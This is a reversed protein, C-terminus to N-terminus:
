DPTFDALLQSLVKRVTVMGESLNAEIEPIEIPGDGRGAAHNVSVAIAAYCLGLERAIAAEPMGTMGVVHCGDNELRNIEAATELRPGQTVGYTAATAVDVGSIKAAAILQVRLSACYPETFDIHAAFNQDEEFLTHRRSWSYDVLQDPIIIRGPPMHESIGGVAFVAVVHSVGALQLATLNACYNVRHPLITHADGHRALFVLQKGAFSGFTLASSPEGYATEVHERRSVALGELQTLGSGGIIAIGSM